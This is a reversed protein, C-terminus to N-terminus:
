AWEFIWAIRVLKAGSWLEQTGSYPEEYWSGSKPKKVNRSLTRRFDQSENTIRAKGTGRISFNIDSTRIGM